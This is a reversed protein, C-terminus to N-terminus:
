KRSIIKFQSRRHEVITENMQKRLRDVVEEKTLGVAMCERLYKEIAQDLAADRRQKDVDESM